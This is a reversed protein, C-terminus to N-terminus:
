NDRLEVNKGDYHVELPVIQRICDLVDKYDEKLELKGYMKKSGASTKCTIGVGYHISLRKVIETLLEGKLHLWGKTWSIYDSADVQRCDTIRGKELSLLEDPKLM